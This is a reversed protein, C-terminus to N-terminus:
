CEKKAARAGHRIHLVNVLKKEEQITFIIRYVHPKKGYLLHRTHKSESTVPCRTPHTDLSRIAAVLGDFWRRVQPANDAGITEYLKELNREARATTDVQYAM